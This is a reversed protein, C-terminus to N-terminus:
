ESHDRIMAFRTSSLSGDDRSDRIKRIRGVRALFFGIGAAAVVHRGRCERYGSDFEIRLPEV